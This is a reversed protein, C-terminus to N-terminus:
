RHPGVGDELVGNERAAPARRARWSSSCAWRAVWSTKAEGTSSPPIAAAAMTITAMIRSATPTRYFRRRTGMRGSLHNLAHRRRFVSAGGVAPSPPTYRRYEDRLGSGTTGLSRALATLQPGTTPLADSSGERVLGLRNRTRECFTYADVLVLRDPESLAGVATLENLAAVTGTEQVRYELQLLQTTWEIDSLSGPGLKLHFRPDESPPVRERKMRAKTRRIERLDAPTLPRDWVFDQALTGFRRGLDEDGAIWRGRLLAQREWVLAWRQYYAAYAEISRAQPGHRGEPRLATDVRYLGTAPTSGGLIQM